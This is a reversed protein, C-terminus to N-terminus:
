NQLQQLLEYEVKQNFTEWSYNKGHEICQEKTPTKKRLVSLVSEAFLDYREPPVLYGNNASIADGVGGLDFAVTPTGCAASEIAVMGFGEVDGPVDILPFVQVDSAAYCLTLDSDSLKGLFLVRNKQAMNSLLAKIAGHEGLQNLSDEPNEGVVILGTGPEAELIAPLCFKIFRSLGKRRTMRGVFVMLTKFPINHRARFSDLDHNSPIEPLTTGPNVISINETPIGKKIALRRTNHSNVIIHSIKRSCPTFVAQYFFNDVVLDLGHLYVLTKSGYLLGLIRLTPSILGSGGIIIDFESKRCEWIAAWTSGLLFTALKDPFEHVVIDKSLFESCGAPGIVTLHAYEHIGGALNQM